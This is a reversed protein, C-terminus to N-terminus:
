VELLWEVLGMLDGENGIENLILVGMIISIWKHCFCAKVFIYVHM